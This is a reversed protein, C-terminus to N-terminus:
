AYVESSGALKGQPLIVGHIPSILISQIGFVGNGMDFARGLYEAAIKMAM